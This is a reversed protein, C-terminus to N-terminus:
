SLALWRSCITDFLVGRSSPGVSHDRLRLENSVMPFNVQPLRPFTKHVEALSVLRATPARRFGATRRRSGPRQGNL